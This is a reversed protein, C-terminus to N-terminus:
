ILVQDIDFVYLGLEADYKGRWRKNLLNNEKAWTHFKPNKVKGMTKRRYLKFGQGEPMPKLIIKQEEVGIVFYHHGWEIMTEMTKQNVSIGAFSEIM